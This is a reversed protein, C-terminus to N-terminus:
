HSEVFVNEVATNHNNDNTGVQLSASSKRTIYIM